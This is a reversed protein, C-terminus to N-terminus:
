RAREAVEADGEHDGAVDGADCLGRREGDVVRDLRVSVAVGDAHDEHERGDGDAGEVGDVPEGSRAMAGSPGTAPAPRSRRTAMRTRFTSTSKVTAGPMVASKPGEPAPLDVHRPATAPRTTGSCPRMVSPSSTHNSAAFFVM